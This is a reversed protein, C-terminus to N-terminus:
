KDDDERDNSGNKRKIYGSIIGHSGILASLIGILAVIRSAALLMLLILIIRFATTRGTMIFRRDIAAVGQIGYVATGANIVATLVSEAGEIKSVYLVAATALCVLMGITVQPPLFWQRLPVYESDDGRRALVHSPLAAALVGTLIGSSLLMAPLGLRLSKELTELVQALIEKTQADSLAGNLIQMATEETMYVGVGSFAFQQLLYRALLPDLTDLWERARNMLAGVVDQGFCLYLGVIVALFCLLQSIIGARIRAFFPARKKILATVAAAPILAAPVFVATIEVGFIATVSGLSAAIYVFMPIPGAWAYMLPCLITGVVSVMFFPLTVPQLLGAILATLSAALMVSASPRQSM